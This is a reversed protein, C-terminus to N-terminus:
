FRMWTAYGSFTEPKVQQRCNLLQAASAKDYMIKVVVREGRKGARVSLEKLADSIFTSAGSPSWACTILIVEKEARVILNSMHRFVDALPAIISLPITGHSGMLSPSVMGALPDLNLCCLADHYVRLFFESPQLSGWRGCQRARDLDAASVPPRHIATTNQQSNITTNKTTTSSEHHRHFLRQIIELPTETETETRNKGLESSVTLSLQCLRFVQESLLFPFSSETSSVKQAM